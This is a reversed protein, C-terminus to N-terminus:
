GRQVGSNGQARGGAADPVGARRTSAAGEHPRRSREGQPVRRGMAGPERTLRNEKARGPNCAEVPSRESSRRCRELDSQSTRAHLSATLATRRPPTTLTTPTYPMGYSLKGSPLEKILPHSHAETLSRDVLM